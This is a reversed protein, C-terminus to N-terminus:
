GGAEGVEFGLVGGLDLRRKLEAIGGVGALEPYAAFGINEM